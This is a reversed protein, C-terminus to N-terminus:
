ILRQLASVFDQPGNESYKLYLSPEILELEGILPQTSWNLIDVRAYCWDGPIIQLTREAMELINRSPQYQSIAGGFEEQVRFDATKPKKLVGHSFKQARNNFFILSLEGEDMVSPIFPQIMIPNFKQIAEIKQKLSPDHISTKYTLHSGASITPKTIIETWQQSLIKAMISEYSDSTNFFLTPVIPCGFKKLDTLYNKKYNWLVTELSNIIQIKNKQCESLWDLFHTSHLYYDWPSRLLLHKIKLHDTRTQTWVVPRWNLGAKELPKTLLQDDPTLTPYQECTILGLM